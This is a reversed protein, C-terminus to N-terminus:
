HEFFTSSLPVCAHSKKAEPIEDGNLAVWYRSGLKELNEVKEM